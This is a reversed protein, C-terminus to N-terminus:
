SDENIKKIEIEILDDEKLELKRLIHIPLIVGKSNGINIIKLTTKM